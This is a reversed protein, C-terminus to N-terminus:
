PEGGETRTSEIARVRVFLDRNEDFGSTAVRFDDSNLRVVLRNEEAEEINGASVEVRLDQMRFDAPHYKALASGRSTDYAVRIDLSHPLVTCEANDRVVEFGGASAEIRFPKPKPPPWETKPKSRRRGPRSQGDDSQRGDADPEPFYDALAFVDRKSRTGTIADAINKPAGVIFDITQKGHDYLGRFNETTASWTTHAPPEAARLMTALPGDDITILAFLAHGRVARERANPVLIGERVFVPRYGDGQLDRRLYVTFYSRQHHEATTRCIRLPVRVSIPDGREFLECLQEFAPTDVPFLSETWRPGHEKPSERLSVATKLGSDRAWATLELLRVLDPRGMANAEAFITDSDLTVARQTLGHGTVMVCLRGTLIPYFYERVITSLLSRATIDPDSYPVVVSLGPEPEGEGALGLPRRVGFDRVFRKLVEQDTAPLVLNSTDDLRIGFQGIARYENQAVYHHWLLAKGVLLPDGGSRRVSVALFANAQSCRNFVSKGVGWSGGSGVTKGSLGEARFFSFFDNNDGERPSQWQEIDGELGQTGFDEIAIFGGRSPRNTLNRLKCERARLHPWLNGFWYTACEPTIADPSSVSFVVRVQEGPAAADLSNQISERVLAEGPEWDSDGVAGQNFHEGQLPNYLLGGPEHRAFHWDPRM